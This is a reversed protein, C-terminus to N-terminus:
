VELRPAVMFPLGLSHRVLRLDSIFSRDSIWSGFVFVLVWSGLGLDLVKGCFTDKGVKLYSKLEKM